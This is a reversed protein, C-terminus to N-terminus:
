NVLTIIRIKNNRVVILEEGTDDWQAGAVWDQLPNLLESKGNELDLVYLQNNSSYVAKPKTPNPILNGLSESVELKTIHGDLITIQYVQSESGVQVALISKDNDLWYAYSPAFFSKAFFRNNKGDIDIVGVGESSEYLFMVYAIRTGDKSWEPYGPWRLDVGAGRSPTNSVYSVLSKWQSFSWDTISLDGNDFNNTVIKSGDPSIDYNFFNNDPLDKVSILDFSDKELFLVKNSALFALNGNQLVKLRSSFHDIYTQGQYIIKNSNSQLDYKILYAQFTNKDNGKSDIIEITERIGVILYKGIKDAFTLAYKQSLNFNVEKISSELSAVNINKLVDEISKADIEQPLPKVEKAQENEPITMSSSTSCGTVIIVILILLTIMRKM